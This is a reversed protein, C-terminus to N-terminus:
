EAVDFLLGDLIMSREFIAQEIAIDDENQPCLSGCARSPIDIEGDIQGDTDNSPYDEMILRVCSPCMYEKLTYYWVNLNVLNTTEDGCSCCPENVLAPHYGVRSQVSVCSFDCMIQVGKSLLQFQV